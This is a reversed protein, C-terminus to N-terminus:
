ATWLGGRDFPVVRCGADVVQLLLCPGRLRPVHPPRHPTTANWGVYTISDARKNLTNVAEYLFQRYAARNPPTLVWIVRLARSLRRLTPMQSLHAALPILPPLAAKASLLRKTVSANANISVVSGNRRKAAVAMNPPKFRAWWWREVSLICHYDRSFVPKSVPPSHTRIASSAFLLSVANYPYRQPGGDDPPKLVLQDLRMSSESLSDAQSLIAPSLAFPTLATSPIPSHLRASTETKSVVLLEPQRKTSDLPQEVEILAPIVPEVSVKETELHEASCRNAVVAEVPQVSCDERVGDDPQVSESSETSLKDARQVEPQSLAPVIAKNPQLSVAEPQSRSPLASEMSLEPSRISVSAKENESVVDPIHRLPESKMIKDPPVKPTRRVLEDFASSCRISRERIYSAARAPQGGDSVGAHATLPESGPSYSEDMTSAKSVVNPNRRGSIVEIPPIMDDSPLLLPVARTPRVSPTTPAPALPTFATSHSPSREDEKEGNHISIVADSVRRREGVETSFFALAQEVAPGINANSREDIREIGDASPTKDFPRNATKSSVTMRTEAQHTTKSVGRRTKVDNPTLQTPFAHSSPSSHMPLLPTVSPTPSRSRVSIDDDSVINLERFPTKVENSRQLVGAAKDAASAEQLVAFCIVGDQIVNWDSVPSECVHRLTEALAPTAPEKSVSNETGLHEDSRRNTEVAQELRRQKIEHGDAVSAVPISALLGPTAELPSYSLELSETHRIPSTRTVSAKMDLKDPPIKPNCRPFENFASSRRKIREQIYVAARALQGEGEASFPTISQNSRKRATELSPSHLSHVESFKNVVNIDHRGSIVELPPMSDDLPQCPTVTHTPLASPIAPASASLLSAANDIPAHTEENMGKRKSVVTTPVRRREEAESSSSTLAQKIAPGVAVNSRKKSRELVDAPPPEGFRPTATEMSIRMRIETLHTTNGMERRTSIDDSTRQTSVVRSSKSSPTSGDKSIGIGPAPALSVPPLPNHLSIAANDIRSCMEKDKKIIRNVVNYPVPRREEVKSSSLTSAQGAPVADANSRVNIRELGSTSPPKGFRPSIANLSVRTRTGVEQRANSSVVLRPEVVSSKRRGSVALSPMNGARPSSPGLSVRSPTEKKQHTTKNVERRTNLANSMHQMSIVGSSPSTGNKSSPAPYARISSVPMPKPLTLAAKSVPSHKIASTGKESSVKKSRTAPLKVVVRDNAHNPSTPASIVRSSPMVGTLSSGRPFERSLVVTNLRELPKVCVRPSHQPRSIPLRAPLLECAARLHSTNLGQPAPVPDPEASSPIVESRTLQVREPPIQTEPISVRPSAMLSARQRIRERSITRTPSILVPTCMPKLTTSRVSLGTSSGSRTRKCEVELLEKCRFDSYKREYQAYLERELSSLEGEYFAVLRDHDAQMVRCQVAPNPERRAMEMVRPQAALFISLERKLTERRNLYHFLAEPYFHELFNSFSPLAERSGPTGRSGLEPPDKTNYSGRPAGLQSVLRPNRSEAQIPM